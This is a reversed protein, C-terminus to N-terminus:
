ENNDISGFEVIQNGNSKREHYHLRRKEAYIELWKGFLQPTLYFFEQTYRNKFEDFLDKRIFSLKSKLKEDMFEVFKSHTEFKLKNEELNISKPTVIGKSLFEKICFVMLSDFKSWEEKNWDDFLLHGFEQVPTKHKGYYGSIEFEVKRRDTSFGKVGKLMYNSSILVKPSESFAIIEENKYKKEVNFDGTMISFLSEFEFDKKVDDYFMLRHHSEFGSFPFSKSINKGEKFYMPIINGLGRAFLSKGKGGNAEQSDLDIDEDILVIAPNLSPDKYSHCLFGTISRLSEFRDKDKGSLHFMFQSFEANKFDDSNIFDRDLIQKKWIFGKYKEYPVLEFKEKTIKLVGNKYFLIAEDLSGYSFSITMSKLSNVIGRSVYDKKLFENLVKDFHPENAELYDRIEDILRFEEIPEVISNRSIKILQYNGNKLILKRYGRSEWFRLIDFKNISVKSDSGIRYFNTM